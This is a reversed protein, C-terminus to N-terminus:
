RPARGIFSVRVRKSWWISKECNWCQATGEFGELHLRGPYQDVSVEHQFGCHPCELAENTHTPSPASM